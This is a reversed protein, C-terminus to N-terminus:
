DSWCHDNKYPDFFRSSFRHRSRQKWRQGYKQWAKIVTEGIEKKAKQIESQPAKPAITIQECLEDVEARLRRPLKCPALIGDKQIELSSTVWSPVEAEKRADVVWVKSTQPGYAGMGRLYKMEQGRELKIHEPNYMLYDYTKAHPNPSFKVSIIVNM